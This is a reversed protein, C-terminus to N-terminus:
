DPKGTDRARWFALVREATTASLREFNLRAEEIDPPSLGRGPGLRLMILARVSAWTFGVARGLILIPDYRAGVMLQDVSTLRVESLLALGAVAEEYKHRRAFGLIAAENLGGASHLESVLRQAPVFDRKVPQRQAAASIRNMAQGIAVRQKPTANEFLRRRVIDVSTSLLEALAQPAIDERQGVVVALMGDDAARKILGAYGNDSFAAGTNRAVTRVVDREGRRVIIDTIQPSLTPRESIAALHSQGKLRAIETLTPESICLSRRLVPGAVVIENARALHDIVMPPANGIGAFREALEARIAIEAAPMLGLLIDDFLDVHATEFNAAGDLFLESIRVIADARKSASGHKVIDDLEPILSLAVAM